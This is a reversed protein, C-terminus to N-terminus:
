HDMKRMLSFDNYDKDSARSTKKLQKYSSNNSSGVPLTVNLRSSSVTHFSVLIQKRMTKGYMWSQCKQAYAAYLAAYTVGYITCLFCALVLFQCAHWLKTHTLSPPRCPVHLNLKQTHWFKRRKFSAQVFARYNCEPVETM